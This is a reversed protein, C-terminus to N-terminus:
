LEGANIYAWSNAATSMFWSCIARNQVVSVARMAVDSQSVAPIAMKPRYKAIMQAAGGKVSIFKLKATFGQLFAKDFNSEISVMNHIAVCSGLLGMGM